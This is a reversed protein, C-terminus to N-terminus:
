VDLSRADDRLNTTGPHSGAASASDLPYGSATLRAVLPLYGAKRALQLMLCDSFGLAPRMCFLAVAAAVVDADELILNNLNLLM